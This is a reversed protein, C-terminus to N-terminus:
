RGTGNDLIPDSPQVYEPHESLWDVMRQGLIHMILWLKEDRYSRILVKELM